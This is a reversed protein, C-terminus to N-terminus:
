NARPRRTSDGLADEVRDAADVASEHEWIRVVKWGADVLRVDTDLDRDVNRQLKAAWWEANTQPFTAHEPCRHWFCGDVFVAVRSRTFAIDVTRRLGAVPRVHIRYRRGRAHLERRLEVEPKTDRTAQRSM